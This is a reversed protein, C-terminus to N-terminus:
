PMTTIMEGDPGVVYWVGGVGQGTVDGPEKDQVWLYLPMGNLTIQKSGDALEITGVEGTVGEVQPEDSETIIPPWKELCEGECASKGSNPTDKTFVYATMQESNVVISGLDSDAVMLEGGEAATQTTTPSPSSPASSVAASPVSTAEPTTVDAADDGCGALVLSFSLATLVLFRKKM